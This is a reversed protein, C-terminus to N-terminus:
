ADTTIGVSKLAAVATARKTANDVAADFVLAARRVRAHRSIVLADTVDASAAAAPMILVAIPTQSGDTATPDSLAYKGSATIKGLVAGVTLDAGSAITVVDRSYRGDAEYLVVDDIRTGETKTAM